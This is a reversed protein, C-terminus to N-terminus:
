GGKNVNKWVFKNPSNNTVNEIEPFIKEVDIEKQEGFYNAIEEHNQHRVNYILRPDKVFSAVPFKKEPEDFESENSYFPITTKPVYGKMDKLESSLSQVDISQKYLNHPKIYDVNLIKPGGNMAKSDVAEGRAIVTKNRKELIEKQTERLLENLEAQDKNEKATAQKTSAINIVLPNGNMARNDNAIENSRAAKSDSALKNGSTIVQAGANCASPVFKSGRNEKSRTIVVMSEDPLGENRPLVARKFVGNNCKANVINEKESVTQNSIQAAAENTRQLKVEHLIKQEAENRFKELERKFMKELDEHAKQKIRSLEKREEDMKKKEEERAKCMEALQKKMKVIEDSLSSKLTESTERKMNNVCEELLKCHEKLYNEGYELCRRKPSDDEEALRRKPRSQMRKGLKRVAKRRTYNGVLMSQEPVATNDQLLSEKAMPSPSSREKTIPPSPILIKPKGTNKVSRENQDGINLAQVNINGNSEDCGDSKVNGRAHSKANSNRRINSKGVCLNEESKEMRKQSPKVSLKQAKRVPRSSRLLSGKKATEDAASVGNEDNTTSEEIITVTDENDLINEGGQQSSLTEDRKVKHTEGRKVKDENRADGHERKDDIMMMKKEIKLIDDDTKGSIINALRHENIILNARKKYEKIYKGLTQM